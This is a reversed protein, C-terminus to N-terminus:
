LECDVTGVISSSDDSNRSFAVGASTLGSFDNILIFISDLRASSTALTPGTNAIDVGAHRIRYTGTTITFAPLARKTTKYPVNLACNTASEAAGYANRGIIEYYRECLKLEQEKQMPIFDTAHSGKEVKCQAISITGTQSSTAIIPRVTLFSSTGITKGSISAITLPITFKQWSTTLNIATNAGDISSSGGSGFNQIHDVDVSIASDVKAYFSCTLTEGALTRVDEIRQELTVGNANATIDFEYYFTPEGPVDTQGATFSRQTSVVTSGTTTETRWRDAIYDADVGSTTVTTGRQWFDFNGNILYNKASVGALGLYDQMSEYAANAGNRIKLIATATDYWLQYPENETPESSGSSLTRLDSIINNLETRFATGSLGTELNYDSLQTM